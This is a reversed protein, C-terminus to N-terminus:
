NTIKHNEDSFVEVTRKIIGELKSYTKKSVSLQSIKELHKSHHADTAAFDYFDNKLLLKAKEQVHEGYHKSLSLLNLQFLCGTKKLHRYEELGKMFNYREPHALVPVYGQHEMKFILESLNVPKQFYSMEVLVYNDKLPLLSKEQLMQEFGEDLMHEAAAHEVININKELATNLKEYSDFISTKTNPYTGKLIHPTAILKKVQMNKYASLMERSDDVTKAGDDLGPLVHCHMDVFGNLLPLINQKTKFSFNM